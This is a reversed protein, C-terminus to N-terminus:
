LRYQICCLTDTRIWLAASRQRSLTQYREDFFVLCSEIMPLYASIDQDTFRNAELIM